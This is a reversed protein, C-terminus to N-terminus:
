TAARCLAPLGPMGQVKPVLCTSQADAATAVATGASCTTNVQKAPLVVLLRSAQLAHLLLKPVVGCRRQLAHSSSARGVWHTVVAVCHQVYSLTAPSGHLGYLVSTCSYMFCIPVINIGSECVMQDRSRKCMVSNSIDARPLGSLGPFADLATNLM